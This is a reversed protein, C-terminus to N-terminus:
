VAPRAPVQAVGVERRLIWDLLRIRGARSEVSLDAAVDDRSRLAKYAAMARLHREEDRGRAVDYMTWPHMSM